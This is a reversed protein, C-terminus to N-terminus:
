VSFRGCIACRSPTCFMLPPRERNKWFNISAQCRPCPKGMLKYRLRYFAWHLRNMHVKHFHGKIETRFYERLRQKDEDSGSFSIVGSPVAYEGEKENM